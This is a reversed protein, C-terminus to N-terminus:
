RCGTAGNSGSGGGAGAGGGGAAGAGGGLDGMEGGAPGCRAEAGIFVGIENSKTGSALTYVLVTGEHYMLIRRTASGSAVWKAATGAGCIRVFRIAVLLRGQGSGGDADSDDAGADDGAVVGGGGGPERAGDLQADG